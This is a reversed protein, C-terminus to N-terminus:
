KFTVRITDGVEARLLPGLMGLHAWEPPRPKLTTFTSDTYEHYLAKLAVKGITHPGAEVFHRETADFAEGSVQDLGSPAYDWTVEDAAVFYTRTKGALGHGGTPLSGGLFSCLVVVAAISWRGTRAM